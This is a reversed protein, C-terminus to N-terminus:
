GDASVREDGKVLPVDSASSTSKKRAIMDWIWVLQGVKVGGDPNSSDVLDVLHCFESQVGRDTAIRKQQDLVDDSCFSDKHANYLREKRHLSVVNWVCWLFGIFGIGSFVLFMEPHQYGFDPSLIDM